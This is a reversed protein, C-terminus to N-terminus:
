MAFGAVSRTGKDTEVEIWLKSEATLAAPLEVHAHWGEGEKDAKAKVSGKADQTGVWMRVAVVKAADSKITCDFSGEAGPKAEGERVAAITLGDVVQEGLKVEVGHGHGDAHDHGDSKPAAKDDAHDHGDGPAHTHPAAPPTSPKECGPLALAFVILSLSLNAANM